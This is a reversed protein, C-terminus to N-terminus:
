VALLEQPCFYLYTDLSSQTNKRRESSSPQNGAGKLSPLPFLKTFLKILVVAHKWPMETKAFDTKLVRVHSTLWQWFEFCM